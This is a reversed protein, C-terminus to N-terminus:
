LLLGGLVAAIANFLMAALRGGLYFDFVPTLAEFSEIFGVDVVALHLRLTAACVLALVAGSRALRTLSALRSIREGRLAKRINSIGARSAFLVMGALSGVLTGALLWRRLTPSLLATPSLLVVLLAVGAPLLQILAVATGYLGLSKRVLSYGRSGLSILPNGKRRARTTM